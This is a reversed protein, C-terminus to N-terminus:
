SGLHLMILKNQNVGPQIYMMSVHGGENKQGLTAQHKLLIVLNLWTSTTHRLNTVKQTNRQQTCPAAEQLSSLLQPPTIPAKMRQPSLWGLASHTWLHQTKIYKYPQTNNSGLSTIIHSWHIVHM